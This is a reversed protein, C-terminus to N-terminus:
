ATYRTWGAELGPICAWHPISGLLARGGVGWIGVKAPAPSVGLEQGSGMDFVTNVAAWVGGARGTGVKAPEPSVGSEQGSGQSQKDQNSGSHNLRPSGDRGGGAKGSQSPQQPSSSSDALAQSRTARRSGAHSPSTTAGPSASTPLARDADPLPQAKAASRRTSAGSRRASRPYYCRGCAASSKVVQAGGMCGKRMYRNAGMEAQVRQRGACRAPAEGGDQQQQQSEQSGGDRKARRSFTKM